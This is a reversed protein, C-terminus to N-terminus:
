EDLDEIKLLSLQAVHEVVALDNDYIEQSKVTSTASSQLYLM